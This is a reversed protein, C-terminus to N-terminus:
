KFMSKGDKEQIKQHKRKYLFVGTEEAEGATSSEYFEHEV